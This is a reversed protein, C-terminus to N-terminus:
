GGILRKILWVIILIAVFIAGWSTMNWFKVQSEKVGTKPLATVNVTPTKEPRENREPPKLTVTPPRPGDTVVTVIPPIETLPTDTPPIDPTPIETQDPPVPTDPIVSPKSTGPPIDATPCDQCGPVFSGDNALVGVSGIFACAWALIVAFGLGLFFKCENNLGKM